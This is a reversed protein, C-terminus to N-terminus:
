QKSILTDNEIGKLYEYINGILKNSSEVNHFGVNLMIFVGSWCDYSIMIHEEEIQNGFRSKLLRKIEDIDSCDKDFNDCSIKGNGVTILEWGKGM